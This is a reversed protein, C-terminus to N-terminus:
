VVGLSDSRGVGGAAFKKCEVEELRAFRRGKNHLFSGSHGVDANNFGAIFGQVSDPVGQFVSANTEGLGGPQTVEGACSCTSSTM